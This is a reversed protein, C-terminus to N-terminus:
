HSKWEAHSKWFEDNLDQASNFFAAWFKNWEDGWDTYCGFQAAFDCGRGNMGDGADDWSTDYIFKGHPHFHSVFFDYPSADSRGPLISYCITDGMGEESWDIIEEIAKEPVIKM